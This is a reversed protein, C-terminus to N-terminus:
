AYSGEPRRALLWQLSTKRMSAEFRARGIGHPLGGPLPGAWDGRAPVSQRFHGRSPPDQHTRGFTRKPHRYGGWFRPGGPLCDHHTVIYCIAQDHCSGRRLFCTQLPLLFLRYGLERNERRDRRRLLRYSCARGTRRIKGSRLSGAPERQRAVLFASFRASAAGDCGAGVDVLSADM